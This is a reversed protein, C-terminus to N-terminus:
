QFKIPRCIKRIKDSILTIIASQQPAEYVRQRAENLKAMKKEYRYVSYRHGLESASIIAYVLLVSLAIAIAFFSVIMGVAINFQMVWGHLWAPQMAEIAALLQHGADLPAHYFLSIAVMAVMQAFIYPTILSVYSCLLWMGVSRFVLTTYACSSMGEHLRHRFSCGAIVQYHWSRQNILIPDM